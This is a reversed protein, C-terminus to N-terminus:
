AITRGGDVPLCSGTIFTALDSALFAIAHATEKVNGVRGLPHISAMKEFFGQAHEKKIGMAFIANTEIVGPNISNVRVGKQALELALCRTFQDLAAKSMAYVPMVESARLGAVSSVNVINGKSEILHPIVLQTLRLVSRVNLDMIFDYDEMKIDSIKNTDGQGANNVLIDIKKFKKLTEDVIKKRDKEKTVDAVIILNESQCKSATENLNEENRGVLVVSGGLQSFYQAAGRGIGSSAGTILIVKNKFDM